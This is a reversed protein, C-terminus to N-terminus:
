GQVIQGFAVHKGDLQPAKRLTILFQSSNTHRGKNAMSLVGAQTHRRLFSEDKFTGGYVSEGGSGNNYEFDGSQIAFGPSVKFFRCGKYSLPLGSTKSCGYEGTCLGRFNEVAMPSVDNFLEFIIRGGTKTGITVDLFVRINSPM